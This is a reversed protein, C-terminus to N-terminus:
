QYETEEIRRAHCRNSGDATFEAFSPCPKHRYPLAQHCPKAGPPDTHQASPHPTEEANGKKFAQPTKGNGGSEYNGTCYIKELQNYMLGKQHQPPVKEFM